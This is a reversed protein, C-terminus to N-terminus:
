GAGFEAGLRRAATLYGQYREHQSAVFVSDTPLGVKAFLERLREKGMGVQGKLAPGKAIVEGVVRGGRGMRAAFLRLMRLAPEFDDGTPEGQTLIFAFNKPKWDRPTCTIHEPGMTVHILSRCRDVLVKLTGPVYWFYVPAGILLGDAAVFKGAFGAWDDGKIACHGLVNCRLCGLCPKIHMESIYLKEVAAGARRAGEIAADLLLDSNGSKRPSVCLALINVISGRM